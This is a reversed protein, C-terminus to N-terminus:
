RTRAVAMPREREPGPQREARRALAGRDIKGTSTYALEAVVEVREPVMYGPLYERCRRRLSRADLEIGPAATVFAVLRNAGSPDRTVVCVASAVGGDGDLAAEVEGLEVRHGRVKVMGDDRGVFVLRGDALRRVIDGTRYYRKGDKDFFRDATRGPDNWYGRMTSAGGVCLEGTAEGDGPPVTGDEARLLTTAYPCPRGIPPAAPGGGALDAEGVRHFTCVNTETPGYLNYLATGEPLAERLSRLHRVPYEEGAFAVVRLRSGSLPEASGAMRRLATPVSYWISIDNEAVFRV